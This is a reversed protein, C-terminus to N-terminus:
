PRQGTAVQTMKNGDMWGAVLSVPHTPPAPSLVQQSLQHSPSTGPMSSSMQYSAAITSPVSTFQTAAVLPHPQQQLYATHAAAPQMAYATANPYAHQVPFQYYSPQQHGQYQVRTAPPMAYMVASAM